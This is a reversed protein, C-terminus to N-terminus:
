QRVCLFRFSKSCQDNQGFFGLSTNNTVSGAGLGAVPLGAIEVTWDTRTDATLRWDEQLGTWYFSVATTFPQNLSAGSGFDVIGSGNTTMLLQGSSNYYETNSSLVWGSHESSGGTCYATTCAVRTSSSL